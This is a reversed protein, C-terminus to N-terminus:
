APGVTSSVRQLHQIRVGQLRIPMGEVSELAESIGTTAQAMEKHSHPVEDM